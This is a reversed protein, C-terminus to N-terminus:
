SVARIASCGSFGRACPSGSVSGLKLADFFVLEPITETLRHAQCPGAYPSAFHVLFHTASCFRYPTDCRSHPGDDVDVPCCAAASWVKRFDNEMSRQLDRGM